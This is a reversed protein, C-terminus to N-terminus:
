GFGPLSMQEYSVAYMYDGKYTCRMVRGESIFENLRRTITETSYACRQDKLFRMIDGITYWHDAVFYLQVVAWLDFKAFMIRKGM